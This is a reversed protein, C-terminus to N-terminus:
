LRHDVYRLVGNNNVIYKTFVVIESIVAQLPNITPSCPPVTHRFNFYDKRRPFRPTFSLLNLTGLILANIEESVKICACNWRSRCGRQIGTEYVDALCVPLSLRKEFPPALEISRCSTAHMSVGSATSIMFFESGYTGVKVNCGEGGFRGFTLTAPREENTEYFRLKDPIEGPCM